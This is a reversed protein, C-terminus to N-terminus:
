TRKKKFANAGSNYAGAVSKAGPVANKNQQVFNDLDRQLYGQDYLHENFKSFGEVKKPNSISSLFTKEANPDFFDYKEEIGKWEKLVQDRPVNPDVVNGWATKFQKNDGGFAKLIKAKNVNKWVQKRDKVPASGKVNFLQDELFTSVAPDSKAQMYKKGGSFAGSIKDLWSMVLKGGM